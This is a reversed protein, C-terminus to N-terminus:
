QFYSGRYSFSGSSNCHWGAMASCHCLPAVNSAPAADVGGIGVMEGWWLVFCHCEPVVDLRGFNAWWRRGGGYCVVGQLPVWCHCEVNAFDAWWRRGGYCAQCGPAVDLRGFNARLRRGGGYCAVIAGQLPVRAGRGSQWLQGVSCHCGAIAAQHRGRGSGWLQGVM